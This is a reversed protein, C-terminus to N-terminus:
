NINLNLMGYGYMHGFCPQAHTNKMEKKFGKFDDKKVEAPQASYLLNIVLADSKFSFQATPEPSANEKETEDMAGEPQVSTVNVDAKQASKIEFKVGVLECFNDFEVQICNLLNKEMASNSEEIYLDKWKLLDILQANVVSLFNIWNDSYQKKDKSKYNKQLFFEIKQQLEQLNNLANTIKRQDADNVVDKFLFNQIIKLNDAFGDKKDQLDRLFSLSKSKKEFFGKLKDDFIKSVLKTLLAVFANSVIWIAGFVWLGPGTFTAGIAAFTVFTVFSTLLISCFIVLPAVYLVSWKKKAHINIGLKQFFWLAWSNKKSAYSDFESVEAAKAKVEKLKQVRKQHNQLCAAFFHKYKKDEEQDPDDCKGLTELLKQLHDPKTQETGDEAPDATGEEFRNLDNLDQESLQQLFYFANEGDETPLDDYHVRKSIEELKNCLVNAFDEAAQKEASNEELGETKMAKAASLLWLVFTRDQTLEAKAILGAEFKVLKELYVENLTIM